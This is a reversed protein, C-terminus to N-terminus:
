VDNTTKEVTLNIFPNSFAVRNIFVMGIQHAPSAKLVFGYYHMVSAPKAEAKYLPTALETM